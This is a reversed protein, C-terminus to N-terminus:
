RTVVANNVYVVPSFDQALLPAAVSGSLAAALAASLLLQRM